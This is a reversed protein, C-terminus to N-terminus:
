GREIRRKLRQAPREVAMYLLATLAFTVVLDLPLQTKSSLGTHRLLEIVPLHVLYLGYSWVGILVLLPHQLVSTLKSPTASTQDLIIVGTLLSVVLYGGVYPFNGHDLLLRFNVLLVLVAVYASARLLRQVKAPPRWPRPGTALALACGLLLGMGHTDPLDSLRAPAAGRLYLFGCWLASVGALTLLAIALHRHAVRAVLLVFPVPWLVYFQEEVALSWTHALLPMTTFHVARFNASYTIVSLAGVWLNHVQQRALVLSGVLLCCAVVVFVGPLLRLARRGYFRGLSIADNRRHEDALLRTILYGSIVFFVDVGFNGSPLHGLHYGIVALIAVARLGDLSPAYAGRRVAPRLPRCPRRAGLRRPAYPSDPQHAAPWHQRRIQDTDRPKQKSQVVELSWREVETSPHVEEM